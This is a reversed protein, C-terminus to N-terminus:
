VIRSTATSFAPKRRLMYGQFALLHDEIICSTAHANVLWRKSVLLCNVPKQNLKKM